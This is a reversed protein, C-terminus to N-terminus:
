PRAEAHLAHFYGGDAAHSVSKRWPGAEGCSCEWRTAHHGFPGTRKNVALRGYGIDVKHGPVAQRHLGRILTM